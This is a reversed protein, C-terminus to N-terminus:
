LWATRRIFGMKTRRKDVKVVGELEMTEILDLFRAKLFSESEKSIPKLKSKSKLTATAAPIPADKIYRGVRTSRRPMMKTAKPPSENDSDDNHDNGNVIVDDGGDNRIMADVFDDYLDSMNIEEACGAILEYLTDYTKSSRNGRLDLINKIGMAIGRELFLRTDSFLVAEAFPMRAINKLSECHRLLDVILSKIIDKSNDNNELRTCYKAAISSVSEINSYRAPETFHQNTSIKLLRSQLTESKYQKLKNIEDVVEASQSLDDHTYLYLYLENYKSINRGTEDKLLTLYADIQTKLFVHYNHVSSIRKHCSNALSLNDNWKLDIGRVTRLGKISEKLQPRQKFLKVLDKPPLMLITEDKQYHLFAALGFLYKLNAFSPNVELFHDYIAEFVSPAVYFSLRNEALIVRQLRDIVIDKSERVITPGERVLRASRNPLILQTAREHTSMCLLLVFRKKHNNGLLFSLSRVLFELLDLGLYETKEVIVVLKNVDQITALLKVLNNRKNTHISLIQVGSRTKQTIHAKINDIIAPHDSSQMGLILTALHIQNSILSPFPECKAIGFSESIFDDISLTLKDISEEFQEQIIDDIFKKDHQYLFNKLEFLEDDDDEFLGNNDNSLDNISTLNIVTAM